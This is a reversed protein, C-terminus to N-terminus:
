EEKIMKEGIWQGGPYLEDCTQWPSKLIFSYTFIFFSFYLVWGAGLLDIAANQEARDEQRKCM